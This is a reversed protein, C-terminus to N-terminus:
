SSIGPRDQEALWAHAEETNEFVRMIGGRNVAANEILVDDHPRNSLMAVRVRHGFLQAAYTGVDFRDFDSRPPFVDRIDIFARVLGTEACKIAVADWLAIFGERSFVGRALVILCADVAQIAYTLNDM